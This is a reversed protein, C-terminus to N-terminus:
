VCVHLTASGPHEDRIGSGSDFLKGSGPDADVDFFKLIKIWFIIELSESIHDPINIAFESGLDSPLFLVPDRIRLVAHMNDNKNIDQCGGGINYKPENGLHGVQICHQPDPIM